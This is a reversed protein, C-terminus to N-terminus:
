INWREKYTETSKDSESYELLHLTLINDRNRLPASDMAVRVGRDLDDTTHGWSLWQFPYSSQGQLIDLFVEDKLTDSARTWDYSATEIDLDCDLEITAPDAGLNQTGLVMGSPIGLNVNRSTPDVRIDLVNPFTFNGAYIMVWDYQVTGTDDCCYLFIHDINHTLTIAADVVSWTSSATEAMIIQQDTNNDEIMVKATANGTTKYRFRIRPYTTPPLGLNVGATITETYVDNAFNTCAVTLTGPNTTVSHTGLSAGVTLTWTGEIGGALRLGDYEWGAGYSISVDSMYNDDSRKYSLDYRVSSVPILSLTGKRDVPSMRPLMRVASGYGTAGLMPYTEVTNRLDMEMKCRLKDATIGQKTFADLTVPVIEKYAYNEKKWDPLAESTPTHVTRIGDVNKPDFVAKSLPYRPNEYQNIIYAATADNDKTINAPIDYAAIYRITRQRADEVM